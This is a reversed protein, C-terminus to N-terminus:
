NCVVFPTSHVFFDVFVFEDKLEMIYTNDCAVLFAMVKIMISLLHYTAM